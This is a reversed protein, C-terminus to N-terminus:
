FSGDEKWFVKEKERFNYLIRMEWEESVKREIRKDETNRSSLRQGMRYSAAGM